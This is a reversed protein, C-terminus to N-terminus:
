EGDVLHLLETVALALTGYKEETIDIGDRVVSYRRGINPLYEEIVEYSTNGDSYTVVKGNESYRRNYNVQRSLKKDHMTLDGTVREYVGIRKPLGPVPIEAVCNDCIQDTLELPHKLDGCSTCSVEQKEYCWQCIQKDTGKVSPIVYMDNWPVLTGCDECMATQKEFEISSMLEGFMKHERM